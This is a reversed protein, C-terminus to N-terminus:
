AWMMRGNMCGTQSASHSRASEGPRGTLEGTRSEGDESSQSVLTEILNWGHASPNDDGQEIVVAVVAYKM